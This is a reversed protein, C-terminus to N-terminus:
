LRERSEEAAAEDSVDRKVLWGAALNRADEGRWRASRRSLGDCLCTGKCPLGAIEVRAFGVHWRLSSNSTMPMVVDGFGLERPQARNRVMAM